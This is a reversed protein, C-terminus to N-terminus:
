GSSGGPYYAPNWPNHAIPIGHLPGRYSGQQIEREAQRAEALATDALVTIFANTHQDLRSIRDLCAQTLEVPSVRGAALGPAIDAISAYALDATTV